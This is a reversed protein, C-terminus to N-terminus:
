RRLGVRKLLGGLGGERGAQADGDVQQGYPDLLNASCSRCRSATASNISGCKPCPLDPLNSAM